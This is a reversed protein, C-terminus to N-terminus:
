PSTQQDGLANNLLRRPRTEFDLAVHFMVKPCVVCRPRDPVDSHGPRDTTPTATDGQDPSATLFRLTVASESRECRDHLIWWPQLTSRITHIACEPGTIPVALSALVLIASQAVVSFVRAFWDPLPGAIGFSVLPPVVLLVAILLEGATWAALVAPGVLWAYGALAVACFGVGVPWRDHVCPQRQSTAVAAPALLPLYSIAL